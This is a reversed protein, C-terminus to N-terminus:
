PSRPKLAKQVHEGRRTTFSIYYVLEGDGEGVGDGEGKKIQLASSILIVGYFNIAASIKLSIAETSISIHNKCSFTMSLLCIYGRSGRNAVM